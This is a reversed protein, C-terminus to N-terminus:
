ANELAHQSLQADVNGARNEKTFIDMDIPLVSAIKVVLRRYVGDKMQVTALRIIGDFCHITESVRGRKHFERKDSNEVVWVIDGQQLSRDTTSQWKKQSNM